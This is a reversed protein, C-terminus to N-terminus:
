TIVHEAVARDGVRLNVVNKGVAAVDGSFEHGIVAGPRVHTGGHYIHLDTGCIGVSRVRLLVDNPGLSPKPINKVAMKHKGGYVAAKM